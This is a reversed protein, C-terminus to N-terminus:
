CRHRVCIRRRANMGEPHRARQTGRLVESVEVGQACNLYLSATEKDSALTMGFSGQVAGCRPSSVLPCLLMSRSWGRTLMCIAFLHSEDCM